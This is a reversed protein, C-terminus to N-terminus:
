LSSCVMPHTSHDSMSGFTPAAFLSVFSGLLLSTGMAAGKNEDSTLQFIQLPIVVVLLPLWLFSWGFWYFALGAHEQMPVRREPSSGAALLAAHKSAILPKETDDEDDDFHRPLYEETDHDAMLLYSGRREVLGLFCLNVNISPLFLNFQLTQLLLISSNPYLYSFPSSISLFGLCLTFYRSPSVLFTPLPNLVYHLTPIPYVFSSCSSLVILTDM